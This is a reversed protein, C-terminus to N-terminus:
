SLNFPIFLRKMFIKILFCKLTIVWVLGNPLTRVNWDTFSIIFSWIMPIFQFILFVALSPALFWFIYKRDKKKM